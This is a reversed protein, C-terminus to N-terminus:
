AYDALAPKRNAKHRRLLEKQAKAGPILRAPTQQPVDKLGPFLAHLEALTDEPLAAMAQKGLYLSESPAGEALIVEHRDFVLHYYTVARAANCIRVGPMGTLRIAPLLVEAAGFMRQVTRSALLMRHQRSVKLDREPLGKGLAGKRILVPRLKPNDAIGQSSVRTSLVARLTLVRGDASLVTM